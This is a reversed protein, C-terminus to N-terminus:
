FKIIGMFFLFFGIVGLLIGIVCGLGLYIFCDKDM